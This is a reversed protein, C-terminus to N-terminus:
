DIVPPSFKESGAFPVAANVDRAGTTRDLEVVYGLPRGKDKLWVRWRNEPLPRVKSVAARTDLEAFVDVINGEDFLVLVPSLGHQSIAALKEKLKSSANGLFAVDEVVLAAQAGVWAFSSPQEVSAVPEGRYELIVKGSPETLLRYDKCGEPMQWALPYGDIASDVFMSFHKAGRVSKEVSKFSHEVTERLKNALTESRVADADVMAKEERSGAILRRAFHRKRLATMSQRASINITKRLESHAMLLTEFETQVQDRLAREFRPIAGFEAIAAEIKDRWEDLAQLSASYRQEVSKMWTERRLLGARLAAEANRIENASPEILVFPPRPPYIRRVEAQVNFGSLIILLGVFIKM